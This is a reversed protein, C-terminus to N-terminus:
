SLRYLRWAEIDRLLRLQYELGAVKRQAERDNEFNRAARHQDIARELLDTEFRNLQQPTLKRLKRWLGPNSKNLRRVAAMLVTDPIPDFCDPLPNTV